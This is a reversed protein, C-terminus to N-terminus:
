CWSQFCCGYGNQSLATNIRSQRNDNHPQPTTRYAWDRESNQLGPCTAMPWRVKYSQNNNGAEVLLVSVTPDESLRSAIVCGASGAGVIIYDYSSQLKRNLAPHATDATTSATVHPAIHAHLLQVRRMSSDDHKSRDGHKSSM